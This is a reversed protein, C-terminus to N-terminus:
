SLASILDKPENLNLLLDRRYFELDPTIEITRTNVQKLLDLVKLQRQELRHQIEPLCVRSYFGCLPHMKGQCAPIRVSSQPDTNIIHYILDKALFPTDCAAVFVAQARSHVFASHIGGLPGSGRYIDPYTPLNLFRYKMPVDTTVIV